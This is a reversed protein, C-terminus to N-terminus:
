EQIHLNNNYKNNNNNNNNNNNCLSFTCLTYIKINKNKFIYITIIIIHNNGAGVNQLLVPLIIGTVM